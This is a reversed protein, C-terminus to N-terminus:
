IGTINKLLNDMHEAAQTLKINIEAFAKKDAPILIHHMRLTANKVRPDYSILYASERGTAMMNGQVQWFYESNLERLSQVDKCTLIKVHNAPNEPCKIEALSDDLILGDPSGGFIENYQCFGCEEIEIGTRKEFYEKAEPEYNIGWDIAFSAAFRPVGTILEAIKDAVYTKGQETLVEGKKKPVGMLKWLESSTFKGLRIDHWEATRQEAAVM